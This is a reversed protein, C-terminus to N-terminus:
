KTGNSSKFTETMQRYLTNFDNDDSWRSSDYYPEPYRQPNYDWPSTKRPYLPDNIVTDPSVQQKPPPPDDLAALSKAIKDQIETFTEKVDATDKQRYEICTGGEALEWFSAISEVSVCIKKDTAKLTLVIFARKM